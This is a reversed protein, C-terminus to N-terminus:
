HKQAALNSALAAIEIADAGFHVAHAIIMRAKVQKEFEGSPNVEKAKNFLRDMERGLYEMLAELAEGAPTSERKSSDFFRPQSCLGSVVDFSTHLAEHLAGMDEIGELRDIVAGINAQPWTSLNTM